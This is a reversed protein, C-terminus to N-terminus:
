HSLLEHSIMGFGTIILYPFSFLSNHNQLAAIQVQEESGAM